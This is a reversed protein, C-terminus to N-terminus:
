LWQSHHPKHTLLFCAQSRDELIVGRDFTFILDELRCQAMEEPKSSLM